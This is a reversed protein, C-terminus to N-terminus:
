TVFLGPNHRRWIELENPTNAFPNWDAQEVWDICTDIMTEISLFHVDIGQMVRVVPCPSLPTLSLGVGPVVLAGDGSDAIPLVTALDVPDGSPGEAQMEERYIDITIRVNGEFEGLGIFAGGGFRLVELASQDRHGNQWQYLSRFDAPLEVNYREALADLEADTAGPALNSRLAIGHGELADVFRELKDGLM